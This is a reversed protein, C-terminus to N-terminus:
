LSTAVDKEEESKKKPKRGTYCTAVEKVQSSREQQKM